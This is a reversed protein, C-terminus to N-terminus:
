PLEDMMQGVFKARILAPVWSFLKALVMLFVRKVWRPKVGAPDVLVLREILTPTSAGLVIGVRGGLSHGIVIVKDIELYRCFDKVLQSYEFISKVHPLSSGGFGPLDVSYVKRGSYASLENAM